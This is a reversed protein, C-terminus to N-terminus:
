FSEIRYIYFYSRLYEGCKGNEHADKKNKHPMIEKQSCANSLKMKKEGEEPVINAPSLCYSLTLAQFLHFVLNYSFFTREHRERKLKM